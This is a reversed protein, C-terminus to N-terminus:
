PSVFRWVYLLGTGEVLLSFIQRGTGTNARVLATRPGDGRELRTIRSDRSHFRGPDADSTLTIYIHSRM